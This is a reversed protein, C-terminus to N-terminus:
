RLPIVKVEFGEKLYKDKLPKIEKADGFRSAVINKSKKYYAILHWRTKM